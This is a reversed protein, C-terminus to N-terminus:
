SFKSVEDRYKKVATIVEPYKKEKLAISADKLLRVGSTIDAGEMKAKLFMDRSSSIIDALGKSLEKSFETKTNSILNEASKWNKDGMASKAKGLSSKTTALDIGVAESDTILQTIFQVEDAIEKKDPPIEEEKEAEIEELKKEVLSLSEDAYKAADEYNNQSLSSRSKIILDEVEKLKLGAKKATSLKQASEQLTANVHELALKETLAKSEEVLDIAKKFDKSKGALIAQDILKKSQKVDVGIKRAWLLLPKIESVSKVLKNYLAKDDKVAAKPEPKLKPKPRPAEEPIKEPKPAPEAELEEKEKKPKFRMKRKIKGKPKKEPKIKEEPVETVAPKEPEVPTEVPKVEPESVIATAKEVPAEEEEAAFIANCNPCSTATDDVLTNCIPCEFMVPGAAEEDVASKEGVAGTATVEPKKSAPEVKVETEVEKAPKATQTELAKAILDDGLELSEDVEPEAPLAGGKDIATLIEDFIAREEKGSDKGLEKILDALYIEHNPSDESEVEGEGSSNNEASETAEEPKEEVEVHVEVEKVGFLALDAQCGPCSKADLEVNADCIPCHGVKKVQGPLKV